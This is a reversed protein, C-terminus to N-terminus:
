ALEESMGNSFNTRGTRGLWAIKQTVADLPLPLDRALKLVGASM